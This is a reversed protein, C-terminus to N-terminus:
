NEMKYTGWRKFQPETQEAQQIVQYAVQNNEEFFLFFLYDITEQSSLNIAYKKARSAIEIDQDEFAELLDKVLHYDQSVCDQFKNVKLATLMRNKSPQTAIYRAKVLIKTLLINRNDVWKNCFLNIAQSSQFSSLCRAAYDYFNNKNIVINILFDIDESSGDKAKLSAEKILFFPIILLVCLIIWFFGALICFGLAKFEVRVRNDMVFFVAVPLSLLFVFMSVIMSVIHYKSISKSM